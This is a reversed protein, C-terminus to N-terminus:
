RTTAERPRVEIPITVKMPRGDRVVDLETTTGIGAVYLWTQFDGVSFIPHGGLGVLFDGPRIDARSAPSPDFVDDIAVGTSPIKAAAQPGLRHRLLPLELVSVGIWPSKNSQAVKLADALYLVLNVPLVGTAHAADGDTRVSMGVVHGLIDVVPGGIAGDAIVLSSQLRTASLNAQYCQRQPATAVLGTTFTRDPGPPDGLAILWHGTEVRDSDGFELAPEPAPPKGAARVIALDLMPESGVITAVTRTEDELEIEVLAVLGGADDRVLHNSTAVFGEDDLLMGSGTRVRRFGPYRLADLNAAIWGDGREVHLREQVWAPDRVYGAIGVTRPFVRAAVGAFADQLQLALGLGGSAAVDEGALPATLGAPSVLTVRFFDVHEPTADPMTTQLRALLDANSSAALQDVTFRVGGSPRRPTFGVRLTMSFFAVDWRQADTYADAFSPMATGPVGLSVANYVQHPTLRDLFEGRFARPPPDMDGAAWGDGAGSGGHCLACDSMWLRRGNALNPVTAPRVVAGTSRALKPVLRRTLTWLRRAPKREVLLTEVEELRRTVGPSRRRLAGYQRRVDRTFRLVEGYELENVVKGDRVATGYDTGVYELLFVLRQGDVGAAAGTAVLGLALVVACSPVRASEGRAGLAM